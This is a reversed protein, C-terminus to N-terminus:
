SFLQQSAGMAAGASEQPIQGYPQQSAAVTEPTGM